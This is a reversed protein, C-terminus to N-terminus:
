TRAQPIDSSMSCQKFLSGILSMSQNLTPLNAGISAVFSAGQRVQEYLDLFATKDQFRIQRFDMAAKEFGAAEV